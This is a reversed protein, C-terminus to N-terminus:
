LSYCTSHAVFQEASWTHTFEDVQYGIVVSSGGPNVAWLLILIWQRMQHCWVQFLLGRGMMYPLCLSWTVRLLAGLATHGVLHNLCLLILLLLSGRGLTASPAVVRHMGPTSQHGDGPQVYAQWPYVGFPQWPAVRITSGGYSFIADLEAGLLLFCVGSCVGFCIYSVFHHSAWSQFLFRGTSFGCCLQCLSSSANFISNAAMACLVSGLVGASGRLMLPPQPVM